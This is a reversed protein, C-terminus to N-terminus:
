VSGARRGSLSAGTEIITDNWMRGGDFFGTAQHFSQSNLWPASPCPWQYNDAYGDFTICAARAPLTGAALPGVSAAANFWWSAL